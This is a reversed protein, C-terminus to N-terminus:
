SQKEKVISTDCCCPCSIVTGASRVHRLPEDRTLRVVFPYAHPIRHHLAALRM